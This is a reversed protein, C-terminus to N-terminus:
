HQLVKDITLFLGDAAGKIQKCSALQCNTEIDGRILKWSESTIIISRQVMAECEQPSYRKEEGSMVKIEYCDKSAPLQVILGFDSTRFTTCRVSILSLLLIVFPKLLKM